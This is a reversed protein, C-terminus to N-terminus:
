LKQLLEPLPIVKVDNKITYSENGPYVVYAKDCDLDNFANWYAKTLTPSLSYKVEIAILKKEPSLLLLDIEAGAASRYFYWTWGRESVSDIIQNIVFGEWSPGIAPNSQLTEYNSINLVSHLLGSDRFYIKPAKVLRKKRNNHFPLIQRILFTESFIDVYHKITPATVGLSNALMSANCLQGHIHSVMNLFRQLQASPTRVGFQPLDRELYTKLFSDRWKLSETENKALFSNPYGGRLWLKKIDQTSHTLEVINLPSLEHYIIRGALSESSHKIFDPSSSGLLMFRGAKRKKDVLARILPFLDPMRQVEDIIVLKEQHQSLYIEAENLKNVDSPLELDLYIFPKKSNKAIIKALTTKGVQRSGILGVVPFQKISKWIVPEIARPIM